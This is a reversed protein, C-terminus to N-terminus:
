VLFPRLHRYLARFTEGDDPIIAATVCHDSASILRLREGACTLMLSVGLPGHRMHDGCVTIVTVDEQRSDTQQLFTPVLRPIVAAKVAFALCRGDSTLCLPTVYRYLSAPCSAAPNKRPVYFAACDHWQRLLTVSNDYLM